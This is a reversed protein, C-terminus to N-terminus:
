AKAAKREGEGQTCKLTFMNHLLFISEQQSDFQRGRTKYVFWGNMAKIKALAIYEGGNM